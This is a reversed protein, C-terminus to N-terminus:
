QHKKNQTKWEEIDNIITQWQKTIPSNPVGIAAYWEETAGNYTEVSRMIEVGLYWGEYVTRLADGISYQQTQKWVVDGVLVKAAVPAAAVPLAQAGDMKTADGFLNSM